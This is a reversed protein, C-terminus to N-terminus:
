AAAKARNEMWALVESIIFKNRRGGKRFPFRNRKHNYMWKEITRAPVDISRSLEDLYVLKSEQRKAQAIGEVIAQIDDPHLRIYDMDEGKARVAKYVMKARQYEDVPVRKSENEKLMAEFRKADKGRLLVSM